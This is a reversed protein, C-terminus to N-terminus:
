DESNLIAHNSGIHISHVSFPPVIRNTRLIVQERNQLAQRPRGTVGTYLHQWWTPASRQKQCKGHQPACPQQLESSELLCFVSNLVQHPFCGVPLTQGLSTPRLKWLMVIVHVIDCCKRFVVSHKFLFCIQSNTVTLVSAFCFPSQPKKLPWSRSACGFEDSSREQSKWNWDEILKQSM